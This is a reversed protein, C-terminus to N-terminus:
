HHRFTNMQLSAILHGLSPAGLCVGRGSAVPLNQDISTLQSLSPIILVHSLSFMRYHKTVFARFIARLETLRETHDLPMTPLLPLGNSDHELVRLEKPGRRRVGREPGESDGHITAQGWRKLIPVFRDLDSRFM